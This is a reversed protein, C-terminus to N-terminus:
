TVYKRGLPGYTTAKSQNKSTLIFLRKVAMRLVRQIILVLYTAFKEELKDTVQESMQQPSAGPWTAAVVMTRITFNPDEMRGIKMFSFSGIAFLMAMFFYIISKHRLAWDALNFQKM